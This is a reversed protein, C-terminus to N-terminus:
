ESKGKQLIVLVGICLSKSMSVLGVSLLEYSLSSETRLWWPQFSRSIQWKKGVVPRNKSDDKCQCYKKKRPDALLNRFVGFQLCHFM